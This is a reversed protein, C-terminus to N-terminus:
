TRALAARIEGIAGDLREEVDETVGSLSAFEEELAALKELLRERESELEAVRGQLNAAQAAGAGQTALALDLSELATKLREAALDLRSM